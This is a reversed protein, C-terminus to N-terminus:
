TARRLCIYGQLHSFKWYVDISNRIKVAAYTKVLVIMFVWMTDSLIHLQYTIACTFGNYHENDPMLM